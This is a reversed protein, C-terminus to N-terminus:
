GCDQRRANRVRKACVEAGYPHRLWGQPPAVGPGERGARPPYGGTLRGFVDLLAAIIGTWGTQHGAGLGAGIDGHFYEYFLILHRWTRTM